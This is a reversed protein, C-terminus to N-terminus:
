GSGPARRGGGRVPGRGEGHLLRATRHDAGRQGVAGGSHGPMGRRPHGPRDGPAARRRGPGPGAVARRHDAPPAQGRIGHGPRAAATRRGLPEGGDPALPGESPPVVGPGTGHPRPGRRRRGQRVAVGGSQLARRRHPHPVGSAGRAGARDGVPRARGSRRPHHRSRRLRDLRRDPRGPRLGGEVAHVERGREHGLPRRDRGPPDGHRGRVAGAGQRLRRARGPVRPATSRGAVAGGAADPRGRRGRPPPVSPSSSRRRPRRRVPAPSAADPPAPPPVPASSRRPTLRRRVGAGPRRHRAGSASLRRRPLPRTGLRTTAERPSGTASTSSSGSWWWWWPRALRRRDDRCLRVTPLPRISGRARTTQPRWAPSPQHRGIAGPRPTFPVPVPEASTAPDAALAPVVIGRRKAVWRLWDDRKHMGLEASGGPNFYANILLVPGTLLLPLTTEITTSHFLDYVRPGFVVAVEIAMAGVVAWPVSSVGAIAVALFITLSAQPEYTGPVVNQQAYAFLVGALGAIGGSIAFAALRTRAPNVAFAAAARENDRLAILVRGSRNRRFALAAVMVLALFVLCVYYFARDATLDIRGYLVPRSLHASLGSPLIHEGIWYHGNLLYNPVAYGFALTTVALYLGQIRLSPLGVIVAAVVGTLIGVGLAAFFDINHNAVLGGAVGASAGVLGFQGLSIQGAWGTLVVLSVAVIGYLPLLVLYSVNDVGLIYPLAIMLGAGVVVMGWRAAAVEPLKRLEAPIPRYQKVTQWRGEGADLARATRRPQTLLAGLIVLVMISSAISNDGSNIITATILVGIGMGAALAVGFREMRSVVAAALAYLLTDLGLTADNPTGILPAQVYIALAALLGALAWAAASVRRVPIGLLLAREANEASARLAIGLRTLRLFAALGVTVVVVTLFAAIENGTLLPQGRSTHWVLHQWPTTVTTGQNTAKQGLWVPIFFGLVALSQAVAITMVTAILRPVADFRRMVVDTLLGLVPGGVLM